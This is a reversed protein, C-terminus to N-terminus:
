TQPLLRGTVGYKWHRLVCAKGCARALLPGPSRGFPGCPLVPRQGTNQQEASVPPVGTGCEVVALISRLACANAACKTFRTYSDKYATYSPYVPRKRGGAPGNDVMKVADLANRLRFAAPSAGAACAQAPRAQM